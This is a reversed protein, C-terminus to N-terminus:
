GGARGPRRLQRRDRGSRRQAAAAHRRARVRRGAHPPRRGPHHQRQPVLCGRGRRRRGCRRHPQERRSSGGATRGAKLLVIPTSASVTRALRAFAMPEAISELYAAIVRTRDDHQWWPLVDNGGVDAKNGVTVLSSVGAGRARLAELMAVAAAGSQSLVGTTGPQLGEPLFTADLGIAPDTNAVGICNPGILRMGADRCIRVLEAQDARGEPGAEGFGATLALLARTGSAACDLAVSRVAATNVAVVVLDLPQPIERVSSFGPVSGIPVGQPNVAFLRGTFGSRLLHYLVQRGVTHRHQGAGVVAISTPALVHRLSAVEARSQRDAVRDIVEDVTRVACHVRVEGSDFENAVVFGSDRFVRLMARNASMVLAVVTDFGLVRARSLLDELVLTGLGDGHRRDAVLLGFEAERPGSESAPCPHLSGIAVVSGRDVVVVAACTEDADALLEVYAEGARRSVTFFRYYSSQETAEALLARVAPADTDVYPRLEVALGSATLADYASAPRAPPHSVTSPRDVTSSSM